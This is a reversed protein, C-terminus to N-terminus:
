PRWYKIKGAKIAANVKERDTTRADPQDFDSLVVVGPKTTFKEAVATYIYTAGYPRYGQLTSPCRMGDGVIIHFCSGDPYTTAALTPWVSAMSGSGDFVYNWECTAPIDVRIEVTRDDADHGNSGNDAENSISLTVGNNFGRSARAGGIADAVRRVRTEGLVLNGTDVSTWYKRDSLALAGALDQNCADAHGILELERSWNFRELCRVLEKQANTDLEVQGERFHVFCSDNRNTPGEVQCVQYAHTLLPWQSIAFSLPLHM